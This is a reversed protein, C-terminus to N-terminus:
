AIMNYSNTLFSYINLSQKAYLHIQEARSLMGCTHITRVQMDIILLATTSLDITGVGEPEM